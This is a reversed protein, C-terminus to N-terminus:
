KDWELCHNLMCTVKSINILDAGFEAFALTMESNTSSINQPLHAPVTGLLGVVFENNLLGLLV